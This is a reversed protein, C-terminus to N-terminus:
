QRLFKELADVSQQYMEPRREALWNIAQSGADVQDDHQGLPFSAHEELFDDLWEAGRPLYIDGAEQFASYPQARAEKAGVPKILIIGPFERELSEAAARGNAAAEVLKGHAQPFDEFVSRLAGLLDLFGMKARVQTVLYFGGNMAAWVQIVTWDAGNSDVFTPDCSVCWVAGIGDDPLRDYFKWLDRRFMGGGEPMPRQQLQAAAARSGLDKELDRVVGEPFREPWLLDGPARPDMKLTSRDEAEKRMPWCLHEWGGEELADGSADLDHLRQMVMVTSAKRPDAFRSPLEQRRWTRVRDLTTLDKPQHPDDIVHHHAHQGLVGSDPSTAFVWGGATNQFKQKTWTDPDPTWVTGWRERYWDSELLRRLDGSNRLALTHGYSGLIFRRTPDKSWVWAPWFVSCLRSKMTGPPVNVLLKRIKYAAVDELARCLKTVHWNELYDAPDIASWGSRVFWELGGPLSCAERDIKVLVSKTPIKTDAKRRVM